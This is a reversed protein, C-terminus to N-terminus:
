KKNERQRRRRIWENYKQVCKKCVIDPYRIATEYFDQTAHGGGSLRVNCSTKIGHLRISQWHIKQASYGAAKAANSEKREQETM